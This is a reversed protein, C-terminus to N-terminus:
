SGGRTQGLMLHELNVVTDQSISPYILVVRTANKVLVLTRSM